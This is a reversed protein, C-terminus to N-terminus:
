DNVHKEVRVSIYISLYIDLAQEPVFRSLEDSYVTPLTVDTTVEACSAGYQFFMTAFAGFNGKGLSM